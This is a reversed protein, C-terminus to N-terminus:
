ALFERIIPAIFSAILAIISIYLPLNPHREHFPKKRNM